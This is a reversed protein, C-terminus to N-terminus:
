PNLSKILFLSLACQNELPKETTESPGNILISKENNISPGDVSFLIKGKTNHGSLGIEVELKSGNFYEVMTPTLYEAINCIEDEDCKEKTHLAYKSLDIKTHNDEGVEGWSEQLFSRGSELCEAKDQYITQM